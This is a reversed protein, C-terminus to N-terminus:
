IRREDLRAVADSEPCPCAFTDCHISHNSVIQEALIFYSPM